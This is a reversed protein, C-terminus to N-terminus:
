ASIRWSSDVRSTTRSHGGFGPPTFGDDFGEQPTHHFSVSSTSGHSTNSKNVVNVSHRRGHGRPLGGPQHDIGLGLNSMGNFQGM